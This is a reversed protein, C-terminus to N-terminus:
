EPLEAKLFAVTRQWALAAAEADYADPRDDEFFWHGRRTSTVTLNPAQMKKVEELPEMDTEGFHALFRTPIGALDAGTGGYFL